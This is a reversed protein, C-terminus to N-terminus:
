GQGGEKEGLSSSQQQQAAAYAPDYDYYYQQQQQQQAAYYQQQQQASYVVGRRFDPDNEEQQRNRWTVKSIGGMTAAAPAPRSTADEELPAPPAVTAAETNNDQTTTTTTAVTAANDNAENFIRARAEAYAKEKDTLSGKKSANSVGNSDGQLSDGSTNSSAQRKMIKMKNPRKLLVAKTGKAANSGGNSRTTTNSNNISLHSMARTTTQQQQQDQDMLSYDSPGLDCLLQRPMASQHTKKCRIWEPSMSERLIGFRDALRHLWCRQFSTQRGVVDTRTPPGSLLGKIIANYSGGIDIEQVDSQKIFGIMTQECRLLALREKPDRMASLLASDVLTGNNLSVTTAEIKPARPHHYPPPADMRTTTTSDGRYQQQQQRCSSTDNTHQASTTLTVGGSALQSTSSAAAAAAFSTSDPPAFMQDVVFNERALDGCQQQEVSPSTASAMM